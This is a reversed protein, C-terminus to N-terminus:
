SLSRSTHHQRRYTKPRMRGLVLKTRGTNSWRHRKGGLARPKTGGTSAETHERKVDARSHESVLPERGPTVLGTEVGVVAGDDTIKPDLAKAKAASTAAAAEVEDKTGGGDRENKGSREM